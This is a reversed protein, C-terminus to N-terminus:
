LPSTDPRLNGEIGWGGTLCEQMYRSLNMAAYEGFRFLHGYLPGLKENAYRNIGGWDHPDVGDLIARQGFEFMREM